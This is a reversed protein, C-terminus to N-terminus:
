LYVWGLNSLIWKFFFYNGAQLQKGRDGVMGGEGWSSPAPSLTQEKCPDSPNTLSGCINETLWVGLVSQMLSEQCSHWLKKKPIALHTTRGEFLVRISHKPKAM